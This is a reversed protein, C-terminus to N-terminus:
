DGWIVFTHPIVEANQWGKAVLWDVFQSNECGPHEKRWFAWAEDLRKHIFTRNFPDAWTVPPSVAGIFCPKDDGTRVSIQIVM